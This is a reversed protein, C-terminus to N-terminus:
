IQTDVKSFSDEKCYDEAHVNYLRHLKRETIKITNQTSNM